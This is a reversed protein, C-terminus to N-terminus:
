YTFSPNEEITQGIRMWYEAQANVSRNMARGM